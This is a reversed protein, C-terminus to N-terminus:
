NIKEGSSGFANFIKFFFRLSMVAFSLPIILQFPWSPVDAYIISQYVYEEYVFKVSFYTMATCVLTCISHSMAVVYALYAKPLYNSIIDIKIHGGQRTAVMAGILAIWLISIRIVPDIWPISTQMFNRLVIQLVAFLAITIPFVVLLVNELIHFYDDLKKLIM